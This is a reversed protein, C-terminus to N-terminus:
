PQRAAGRLAEALEAALAALARDHADVLAEVDPGRVPETLTSLRDVAVKGDPSTLSWRAELRLDGGLSGDFRFVELTVRWPAAGPPDADWARVRASGLAAGLDQVLVRLSDKALPAAWRHTQCLVVTGGGQALVLHPRDLLDPFRAPGVRVALDLPPGPAAPPLPQLRHYTV